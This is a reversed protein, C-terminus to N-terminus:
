VVHCIKMHLTPILEELEPFLIAVLKSVSQKLKARKRVKDFRYRTLSKLEEMHYSTDSGSSLMM